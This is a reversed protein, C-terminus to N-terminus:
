IVDSVPLLTFQLIAYSKRHLPQIFILHMVYYLEINVPLTFDPFVIVNARNFINRWHSSLHQWGKEQYVPLRKALTDDQIIWVIPISYFPEQM